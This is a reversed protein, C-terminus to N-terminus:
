FGPGRGRGQQQGGGFPSASQQGAGSAQNSGVVVQMGEKLESGEVVTSKGDSLGTRVRLMSLKGASDVV